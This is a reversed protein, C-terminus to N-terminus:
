KGSCLNCHRGSKSTLDLCTYERQNSPLMSDLGQEQEFHRDDLTECPLSQTLCIIVPFARGVLARRVRCIGPIVNCTAIAFDVM